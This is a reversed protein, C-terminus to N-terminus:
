SGNYEGTGGPLYARTIEAIQKGSLYWNSTKTLKKPVVIEGARVKRDFWDSTFSERTMRIIGIEYLVDYLFRLPYLKNEQIGFKELAENVM